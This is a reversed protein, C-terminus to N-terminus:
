LFKEKWAELKELSVGIGGCVEILPNDFRQLLGAHV